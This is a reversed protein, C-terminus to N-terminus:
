VHKPYKQWSKGSDNSQKLYKSSSLAEDCIKQISNMIVLVTM